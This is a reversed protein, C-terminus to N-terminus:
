RELIVKGNLWKDTEYEYRLFYIGNAYPSLDIKFSKDQKVDYRELVKGSIDSLFIEGINQEVEIMLDGKTPNPYYKWSVIKEAVWVKNNASDKGLIVDGDKQANKETKEVIKTQFVTETEPKKDEVPECEPQYTYQCVLRVALQYFKEVKFDDTTPKIHTGGIGSDDTLFAYTGNTALAMSRLLYETSKDIGSCAVPIIRIGKHAAARIQMQLKILTEIDNHSPADLVLFVIRTSANENWKLKQVADELGSEVAEPFDGGGGYPTNLMFQQTQTVDKSFPSVKTLYADGQDQYFVSGFNVEWGKLTDKLNSAINSLDARIHAIEDGMSGTADVVFAIDAQLNKECTKDITAHNVGRSFPMIQGVDQSKGDFYIRMLSAKGKSQPIQQFFEAWLEAKGTNDTRGTWIVEDDKSRLEVKLNPMPHHQKNEVQIVYREQPVMKWENQFDKFEDKAIGKWMKWKAFDNVEGATLKGALSSGGIKNIPEKKEVDRPIDAEKASEGKKSDKKMMVSKKPMALGVSRDASSGRAPMAKIEERSITAATVSEKRLIEVKKASIEVADYKISPEPSESEEDFTDPIGDLDWELSVAGGTTTTANSVVVAALSAKVTKLTIDVNKTENEKVLIDTQLEEAYDILKVKLSYKGANLSTFVYQGNEDSYTGSIINGNELLMVTAYLVAEKKEDYIHGTIKANQAFLPSFSLWFTSLLILYKM